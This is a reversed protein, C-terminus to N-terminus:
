EYGHEKLWQEAVKPHPGNYPILRALSVGTGGEEVLANKGVAEVKDWIPDVTNFFARQMPRSKAALKRPDRIFGYHMLRVTSREWGQEHALGQADGVCPLSAPALRVITSGVKEHPPLLHRHDHWFNLREVTYIRGTDSLKSILGYDAECYVEDAQGSLHMDTGLQERTQNTLDALWTGMSSPIWPRQLVVLKRDVSALAQLLEHTGDTSFGDVVVVKDCVGLLSRVAAEVCYDFEIANRVILTGGLTM